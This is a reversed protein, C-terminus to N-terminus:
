NNERVIFSQDGMHLCIEDIVTEEGVVVGHWPVVQLKYNGLRSVVLSFNSDARILCDFHLMAFFDELVNIFENNEERRYDFSVRDCSVAKKYMMALEAPNDHDTFIHVYIHDDKFIRAIKKLQAIYFSDPAFRLPHSATLRAPTIQYNPIDWGTGKRVHMAVTIGNSLPTCIKHPHRLCIMRQLLAKFTHDYWDVHFLFPFTTDTRNFISECFFPVVYLYGKEPEILYDTSALTIIREFQYVLEQKYPIELEHMLLQDSYEFSKYLLPINHIYSIWKAHCYSLLNDGLRGGSFTYTVASPFANLFPVYLLIISLFISQVTQLLYKM